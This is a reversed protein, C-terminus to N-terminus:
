AATVVNTWGTTGDTNVYMRNSTGTGDTRMYLSGQAASVTPAGSGFYVGVSTNGLTIGVNGGAAPATNSLLTIHSLSSINGNVELNGNVKLNGTSVAINGTASTIIGDVSDSNTTNIFHLTQTAEHWVIAVNDAAPTGPRQFIIGQDPRDGNTRRVDKTSNVVLMTDDFQTTSTGLNSLTPRTLGM